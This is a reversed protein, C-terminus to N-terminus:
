FAFLNSHLLTIGNMPKCVPECPDKNLQTARDWSGPNVTGYSGLTYDTESATFPLVFHLLSTTSHELINNITFQITNLIASHDLESQIELYHELNKIEEEPQIGVDLRYHMRRYFANCLGLVIELHQYTGYQVHAEAKRYYFIAEDVSDKDDFDVSRNLLSNALAEDLSLRRFKSSLPDDYDITEQTPNRIRLAFLLDDILFPRRPHNELYLTRLRQSNLTLGLTNTLNKLASSRGGETSPSGFLYSEISSLYGRELSGILTDM